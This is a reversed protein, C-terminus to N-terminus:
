ISRFSPNFVAFTLNLYVCSNDSLWMNVSLEEKLLFRVPEHGFNATGTLVYAYGDSSNSM